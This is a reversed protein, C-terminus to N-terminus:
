IPSPNLFIKKRSKGETTILGKKEAKLVINRITQPSAEPRTKKSEKDWKKLREELRVNAMKECFETLEADKAIGLNTLCELDFDSVTIDNLYCYTILQFRIIDDLELQVKKDVLNVQAM